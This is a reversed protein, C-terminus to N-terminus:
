GYIDDDEIIIDGLNIGMRFAIQQEPVDSSRGRMAQQIEAACALAAVVTPFEALIGDGMLKVIRGQHEAVKPEILQGRIQKLRAVTGTEDNGMLRSYGVVDAALIASLRRAM